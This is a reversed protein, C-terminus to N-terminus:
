SDKFSTRSHLDGYAQDSVASGITWFDRIRILACTPSAPCGSSRGSKRLSTVEGGRDPTQDRDRMHWKIVAWVDCAFFLAAHLKSFVDERLAHM